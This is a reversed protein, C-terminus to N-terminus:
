IKRQHVKISYKFLKLVEILVSYKLFVRGNFIFINQLAFAACLFKMHERLIMQGVARINASLIISIKKFFYSSM